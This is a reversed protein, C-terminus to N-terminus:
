ILNRMKKTQFEYTLQKTMTIMLLKKKKWFQVGMKMLQAAMTKYQGLKVKDLRNINYKTPEFPYIGVSTFGSKINDESLGKYWIDGLLNCFHAKSLPENGLTDHVHKTLLTEYHSKLPNFCSVDLPQLVDTCHAPLKVLSVNEKIALEVTRASLHTMHGDFILLIPRVKQTETFALFWEHFIATTMWGSESVAYFTNKLSKDGKWTSQINKGRFIILPDLALGNACCVALVTTNERNAGCTVQVTKEGVPGVHKIRSQDSPFGSEDCNYLCEPRDAIGLRDMEKKLMEYFGYIVFPDSTVSKRAIQMQGGKKLNLRHRKMFASAWDYGPRDDKFPTKINNAIVYDRVLDIMEALTPGFGLSAM